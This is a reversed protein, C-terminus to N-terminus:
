GGRRGAGGWCRFPIPSECVLQEWTHWRGLSLYMRPGWSAVGSDGCVLPPQVLDHLPGSQVPGVLVLVVVVM